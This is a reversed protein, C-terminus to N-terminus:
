HGDCRWVKLDTAQMDLLMARGYFRVEGLNSRLCCTLALLFVLVGSLTLSIVAVEYAYDQKRKKMADNWSCEM